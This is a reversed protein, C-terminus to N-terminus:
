DLKSVQRPKPPPAFSFQTNNSPLSNTNDSNILLSSFGKFNTSPTFGSTQVENMPQSSFPIAPSLKEQTMGFSFSSNSCLSSLLPQNQSDTQRQDSPTNSTFPGDILFQSSGFGSVTPVPSSNSHTKIGGFIGGLGATKSFSNSSENPDAAGFTLYPLISFNSPVKNLESENILKNISSNSSQIQNVLERHDNNQKIIPTKLELDTSSPEFINNPTKIETPFGLSSGPVKLDRNENLKTYLSSKPFDENHITPIDVVSEIKGNRDGCIETNLFSTTSTPKELCNVSGTSFLTPYFNENLSASNDDVEKLNNELKEISDNKIFPIDCVPNHNQTDDVLNDEYNEPQDFLIKQKLELETFSEIVNNSDRFVELKEMHSINESDNEKIASDFDQFKKENPIPSIPKLDFSLVTDNNKSQLNVNEFILSSSESPNVKDYSSESADSYLIVDENHHSKESISNTLILNMKQRYFMNKERNSNKMLLLHSVMLRDCNPKFTGSNLYVSNINNIQWYINKPILNERKMFSISGQIIDCQDIIRELQEHCNFLASNIAETSKNSYNTMHPTTSFSHNGRLPSNYDHVLNINKTPNWNFEFYPVKKAQKKQFVSSKSRLNLYEELTTRTSYYFNKMYFNTKQAPPLILADNNIFSQGLVEKKSSISYSINSIVDSLSDIRRLPSYNFKNINDNRYLKDPNRVARVSSSIDVGQLEYDKQDNSSYDFSGDNQGLLSIPISPPLLINNSGPCNVRLNLRQCLKSVQSIRSALKLCQKGTISISEVMKCLDPADSSRIFDYLISNNVYFLISVQNSTLENRRFKIRLKEFNSNKYIKEPFKKIIGFYIRRLQRELDSVCSYKNLLEVFQEDNLKFPSFDKIFRDINGFINPTSSNLSNIMEYVFKFKNELSKINNEIKSLVDFINSGSNNLNGIKSVCKGLDNLFYDTNPYEENDQEVHLSKKTNQDLYYKFEDNLTDIYFDKENTKECFVAEYNIISKINDEQYEIKSLKSSSIFHAIIGGDTQSILIIPPNKIQPSDLALKPDRISSKSSTCIVADFIGTEYDTCNIDYGESMGLRFWQQSGLEENSTIYSENCTFLIMQSFVSTGMFLIEWEKVWIAICNITDLRCFDSPINDFSLDNISYSSISINTPSDIVFFIIYGDICDRGGVLTLSLYDKRKGNLFKLCSINFHDLYNEPDLEIHNIFASEKIPRLIELISFVFSSPIIFIETEFSITDYLENTLVVICKREETAFVLSIKQNNKECSEIFKFSYNNSEIKFQVKSFKKKMHDYRYIFCNGDVDIIVIDNKETWCVERPDRHDIKNWENFENVNLLDYLAVGFNGTLTLITSSYDLLINSISFSCSLKYDLVLCGKLDVSNLELCMSEGLNELIGDMNYILVQNREAVIIYRLKNCVLIKSGEQSEFRLKPGHIFKVSAVDDYTSVEM